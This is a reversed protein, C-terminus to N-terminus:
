GRKADRQPAVLSDWRAMQAEIYSKALRVANLRKRATEYDKLAAVYAQTARRLDSMTPRDM